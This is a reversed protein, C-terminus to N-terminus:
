FITISTHSKKRSLAMGAQPQLPRVLLNRRHSCRIEYLFVANREDTSIKHNSLQALAPHAAQGPQRVTASPAPTATNQKLRYYWRAQTDADDILALM